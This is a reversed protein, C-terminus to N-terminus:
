QEQQDLWHELRGTLERWRQLQQVYEDAEEERVRTREALYAEISTLRRDQADDRTSSQALQPTMDDVSTRLGTVASEIAVFREDMREVVAEAAQTATTEAVAQVDARIGDTIHPWALLAALVLGPVGGISMVQAAADARTRAITHMPTEPEDSM